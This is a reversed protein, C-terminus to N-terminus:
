KGAQAALAAEATGALKEAAATQSTKWNQLFHIVELPAVQGAYFQANHERNDKQELDAGHDLLWQLEREEAGALVQGFQLCTCAVTVAVSMTGMGNGDRHNLQLGKGVLMRMTDWRAGAAALHLPTRNDSGATGQLDVGASELINIVENHGNLAAAHVATLGDRARTEGVDCLDLFFRTAGVDGAAAAVVLPADGEEGGREYAEEGLLRHTLRQMLTDWMTTETTLHVPLTQEITRHLPDGKAELLSLVVDLSDGVVAFHLPTWWRADCANVDASNSLLVQTLPLAAGGAALMLPTRGTTRDVHNVDASHEILCSVVAVRADAASDSDRTNAEHVCAAYLPSVGLDDVANVNARHDLLERVVSLELRAAALLLPQRGDKDAVNVDDTAEALLHVLSLPALQAAVHLPTVGDPDPACTESGAQLLHSLGQQMNEVHFEEVAAKTTMSHLATDGQSQYAAVDAGHRTLRSV